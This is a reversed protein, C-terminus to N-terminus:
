HLTRLMRRLTADHDIFHHKLAALAHVAALFILTMALLYHADGAKDELNDIGSILAPIEFWDFIALARGDATSILYGSIVSVFPLLVLLWHVGRIVHTELASPRGVPVPAPTALRWILRFVLVLALLMGLSRHLDPAQRYWPHYYDLGTMWLGLAFLGLTGAAILWHVCISIWGYGETNNTLRM